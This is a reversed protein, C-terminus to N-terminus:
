TSGKSANALVGDGGDITRITPRMKAVYAQTMTPSRGSCRCRARDGCEDVWSRGHGGCGGRDGRGGARWRCADFRGVRLLGEPLRHGM